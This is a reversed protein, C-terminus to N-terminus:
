GALEILQLRVSGDALAQERVAYGNKRAELRAMEVAYAQLWRDLRTKEGWQGEYNDYRLEGSGTDVVVPYRWGPLQVLLGTAEGSFLQATGRAPEPLGLRRCAAGIAVPDRVQTQITVVHSM